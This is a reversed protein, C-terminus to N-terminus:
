AQEVAEDLKDLIISTFKSGIGVLIRNRDYQDQELDMKAGHFLNDRIQKIISFIAYFSNGRWRSSLILEHDEQPFPIDLGSSYKLFYTASKITPTPEFNLTSSGVPPFFSLERALARIEDLHWYYDGFESCFKSIENKKYIKLFGEIWEYNEHFVSRALHNEPDDNLRSRFTKISYANM